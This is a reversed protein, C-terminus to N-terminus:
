VTPEVFDLAEALSSFTKTAVERVMSFYRHRETCPHEEVLIIKKGLAHAFGVELALSYGGPNSREMYAIVLDSHRIADLDWLVYESVHQLNHKSPDLLEHEPLAEHAITQWGSRFGGALYIKV